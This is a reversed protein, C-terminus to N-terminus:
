AQKNGSLTYLSAQDEKKRRVYNQIASLSLRSSCAFTCPPQTVDVQKRAVIVVFEVVSMFIWQLVPPTLCQGRIRCKYNEAHSAQHTDQSNSPKERRFFYQLGKLVPFKLADHRRIIM